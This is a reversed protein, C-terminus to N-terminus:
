PSAAAPPAVMSARVDLLPTASVQILGRVPRDLDLTVVLTLTVLVAAVMVTTLGRGLAALHLALLGLAIAAGVIELALVATPVRNDLGYVRSSQADFTENLSEVYLRPATATPQAALAGGAEGWLARETRQSDAVAADQQGSAPVTDAIRISTDTYQRLLDLSRTRAPEPLTEARLYTTGIANSENVVAARRDEYRGVALSLGFALVLGMFGLMAAQMVGFPESNDPSKNRESRGIFHGAATAGIMVVFLIVTVVVTNLRFFILRGGEEPRLRTPAQWACNIFTGSTARAAM